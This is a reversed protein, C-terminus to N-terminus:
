ARAERAVGLLRRVKARLTTPLFPKELFDLPLDLVGGAPLADPFAGSLLLVPLGPRLRAVRACLGLGDLRPMAVDTLVLAIAPEAELKELAVLGDRAELVRYGDYRLMRRMVSRLDVDDEVLLVTEGSGGYAHVPAHDAIRDWRVLPM